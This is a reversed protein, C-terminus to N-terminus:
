RRFICQYRPLAIIHIDREKEVSLGHLHVGVRCLRQEVPQAFRL